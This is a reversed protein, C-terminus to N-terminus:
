AGDNEARAIMRSLQRASTRQDVALDLQRARRRLAALNGCAPAPERTGASAPSDTWGRGPPIDATSAFCRAEGRRYMWLRTDPM